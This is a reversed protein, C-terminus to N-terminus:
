DALAYRLLEMTQGRLKAYYWGALARFGQGQVTGGVVMGPLWVLPEKRDERALILAAYNAATETSTTSILRPWIPMVLKSQEQAQSRYIGALVAEVVARNESTLLTEVTKRGTPGNEDLLKQTAYAAREYDRDRQNDVITAQNVLATRIALQRETDTRDSYSLAWDLVIPQGEKILALLAATSDSGEASKRALLGINRALTSRAGTLPELSEPKMQGAFEYSILGLKVQQITDKQEQIMQAVIKPGEPSKFSLVIAAATHRLGEDMKPDSAIQIAWPLAAALNEKQARLLMLAQVPVERLIHRNSLDKLTQQATAVETAEPSNLLTVAAYYRVIEKEDKLLGVLVSRDKLEKRRNLEGAGIARHAGDPAEMMIKTLQETNLLEADVLSAIASGVMAPEKLSFLLPLDVRSSDKTLIAAAIMGYVQNDLDKSRRLKEFIPLLDKDKASRLATIVQSADASKSITTEAAATMARRLLRQANELTSDAAAVQAAVGGGAAGAAGGGGGGTAQAWCPMAAISLAGIGGLVQCFVKRSLHTM